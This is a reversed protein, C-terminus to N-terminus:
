KNVENKDFEIRWADFEKVSVYKFKIKKDIGYFSKFRNAWNENEPSEMWVYDSYPLHTFVVDETIGSEVQKVIYEVRLM